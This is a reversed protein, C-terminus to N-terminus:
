TTGHSTTDRAPQRKASDQSHALIAADGGILASTSRGQLQTVCKGSDAAVSDLSTQRWM